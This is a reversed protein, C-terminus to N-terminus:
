SRRPKSARKTVEARLVKTLELLSEKLSERKSPMPPPIIVTGAGMLLNTGIELAEHLPRAVSKASPLSRKAAIKDQDDRPEKFKLCMGIIFVIVFYATASWIISPTIKWMGLAISVSPYLMGAVGGVLGIIAARLNGLDEGLFEMAFIPCCIIVLITALAFLFWGQIPDIDMGWVQGVAYPWSAGLGLGCAASASLLVIAKLIKIGM